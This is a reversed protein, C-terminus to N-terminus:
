GHGVAELAAARAVVRAEIRRALDMAQGLREREERDLRHCFASLGLIHARAEPSAVLLAVYLDPKGSAVLLEASLGVPAAACAPGFWAAFNTLMLRGKRLMQYEECIEQAASNVEVHASAGLPTFAEVWGPEPSDNPNTLLRLM